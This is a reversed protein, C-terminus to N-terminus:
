TRKILSFAFDRGLGFKYASSIWLLAFPELLRSSRIDGADVPDFGVEQILGSVKKRADSDNGCFYMVAKRGDLTPNEMINFGVTNFAKVVKAKPLIRQVFEGGSEEGSFVLGSLDPKLPNTCDILIKGELLSSYKMLVTEVAGWPTALILVESKEITQEISEVQAHSGISQALAKLESNELDRAGLYLTHRDGGLKKALAGGVNGTGIFGIKMEGGDVENLTLGGHM